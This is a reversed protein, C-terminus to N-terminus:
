VISSARQARKTFLVIVGIIGPIILAAASIINSTMSLGVAGIVIMVSCWVYVYFDTLKDERENPSKKASLNTTPFNM